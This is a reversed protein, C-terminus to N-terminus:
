SLTGLCRGEYLILPTLPSPGPAEGLGQAVEWSCGGLSPDWGLERGPWVLLVHGMEEAKGM